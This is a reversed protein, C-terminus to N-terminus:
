LALLRDVAARTSASLETEAIEAILRHGEAGWAKAPTPLTLALALLASRLVGGRTGSFATGLPHILGASGTGRM